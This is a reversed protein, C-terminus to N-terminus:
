GRADRWARVVAHDEHPLVASGVIQGREHGKGAIVIVDDPAAAGLALRIAVARDLEVTPHQGAARVGRAIAAAIQAPDEDRPNDNTVVVHDALEGAVEGMPRRKEAMAGGGAGFVVWVAGRAIRRATHLTRTLADETHAYDVVVTPRQHVVEFRGPPPRCAEIGACIASASCGMADGMLAAALANEAFVEGIMPTRLAGGLRAGLGGDRSTDLHVTTGHVDVEVRRAALDPPVLAPGRSPAHFWRRSAHAPTVREVLRSNEDAANMVASGGPPLHVFLQAKAALYNEWSGHAKFHDPSLNTFVAHDFRWLKAYGGALAVSTLEVVGHRIGGLHADHVLELFGEYGRRRDVAVGGVRDGVTTVSVCPRCAAGLIAAVLATTSTKGNTGTVGVTAWCEAWPQAAPTPSVTSM